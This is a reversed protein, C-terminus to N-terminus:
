VITARIFAPKSDDHLKYVEVTKDHPINNWDVSLTFHVAYKELKWRFKPVPIPVSRGEISNFTFNLSVEYLNWLYTEYADWLKEKCPYEMSTWFSGRPASWDASRIVNDDDDVAYVDLVIFRWYEWYETAVARYLVRVEYAFHANDGEFTGTIDISVRTYGMWDWGEDWWQGSHDQRWVRRYCPINLVTGEDIKVKVTVHAPTVAGCFKTWKVADESQGPAPVKDPTTPTSCLAELRLELTQSANYPYLPTALSGLYLTSSAEHFKFARFLIKVPEYIPIFEWADGSDGRVVTVGGAATEKILLDKKYVKYGVLKYPLNFRVENLGDEVTGEFLPKLGEAGMEYIYLPIHSLDEVESEVYLRIPFDRIVGEDSELSLLKLILPKTLETSIEIYDDTEAVQVSNSGIGGGNLPLAYVVVASALLALILVTAVPKGGAGELRM